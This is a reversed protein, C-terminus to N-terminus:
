PLWYLAQPGVQRGVHEDMSSLSSQTLEVHMSPQKQESSVTTAPVNCIM